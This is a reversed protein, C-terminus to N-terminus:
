KGMVQAIRKYNSMQDLSVSPVLQSAALLLDEQNICCDEAEGSNKVARRVANMAASRALAHMDAGTMNTPCADIVSGM